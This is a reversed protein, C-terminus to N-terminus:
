LVLCVWGAANSSHEKLVSLFALHGPLGAEEAVKAAVHLDGVAPGVSKVFAGYCLVVIVLSETSCIM